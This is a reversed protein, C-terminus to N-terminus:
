VMKIYTTDGASMSNKANVITQWPATFTGANADNGSTSVFFIKGARVTFPLGNSAGAGAVNVVVNGSASGAGLQVTIKGDSWLSYNDVPGGGVTVTSSGQTAGFGKGWLTVFVGKGNAGGSNPGSQLDTFFLRPPASQATAAIALACTLVVFQTLKRLNISNRMM